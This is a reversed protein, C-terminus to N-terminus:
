LKPATPKESASAAKSESAPAKFNKNPSDNRADTRPKRPPFRRGKKQGDAGDGSSEGEKRPGGGPRRGRDGDPRDGTNRDNRGNRGRGDRRGGKGKGKGGRGGKGFRGKGKGAHKKKPPNLSAMYDAVFVHENFIRSNEPAKEGEEFKYVVVRRLDEERRRDVMKVADRIFLLRDGSIKLAGTIAGDLEEDTLEIWNKPSKKEGKKGAAAESDAAAAPEPTAESEPPAVPEASEAAVPVAAEAAAEAAAAPEEAAIPEAAAAPEAAAIPEATAESEAAAVPEAAVETEAPAIPEAAVEVRTTPAPTADSAKASKQEEQKKRILEKRANLALRLDFGSFETVTKM